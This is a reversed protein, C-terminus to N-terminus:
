ASLYIRHIPIGIGRKLIVSTDTVAWVTTEVVKKSQKDEFFIKIKAHEINGLYLARTLDNNRQNIAAAENLVENNPFRLTYISEKEIIEFNTKM